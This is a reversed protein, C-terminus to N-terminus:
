SSYGAMERGVWLIRNGEMHRTKKKEEEKYSPRLLSQITSQPGININEM